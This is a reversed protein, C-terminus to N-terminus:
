LVPAPSCVPSLAARGLAVCCPAALPCGASGVLAAQELLPTSQIVKLPRNWGGSLNQSISGKALAQALKKDSADEVDFEQCFSQLYLVWRCFGSVM